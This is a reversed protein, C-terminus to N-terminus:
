SATYLEWFHIFQEESNAFHSIGGQVCKAENVYFPYVKGFHKSFVKDQIQGAIIPIESYNILPKQPYLPMISISCLGPINQEAIQHLRCYNSFRKEIESYISKRLEESKKRRNQLWIIQEPSAVDEPRSSRGTRVYVAQEKNLIHEDNSQPVRVVLFAKSNDTNKAIKIETFM